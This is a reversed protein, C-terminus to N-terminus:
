GGLDILLWRNIPKAAATKAPMAVLLSEIQEGASSAIFPMILFHGQSAVDQLWTRRLALSGPAPLWSEAM